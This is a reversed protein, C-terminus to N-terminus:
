KPASTEPVQWGASRLRCGHLWAVCVLLRDLQEAALLIGLHRHRRQVDVGGLLRAVYRADGSGDQGAKAVDDGRNGHHTSPTPLPQHATPAHPQLGWWGDGGAREM